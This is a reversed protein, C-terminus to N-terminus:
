EASEPKWKSTQDVYRMFEPAEGSEILYRLARITIQLAVYEVSTPPYGQAIRELISIAEVPEPFTEDQYEDDHEDTDDTSIQPADEGILSKAKMYDYLKMDLLERIFQQQEPAGRNRVETVYPNLYDLFAETRNPWTFTTIHTPTDRLAAYDSGSPPQPSTLFHMADSALFIALREPDAINDSLKGLHLVYTLPLFNFNPPVKFDAPIEIKEPIEWTFSM